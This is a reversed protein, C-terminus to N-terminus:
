LSKMSIKDFRESSTKTKGSITHGNEIQKVIVHLYKLHKKFYLERVILLRIFFQSKKKIKI